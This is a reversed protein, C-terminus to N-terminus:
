KAVWVKGDQTQTYSELNVSERADVERFQGLSQIVGGTKPDLLEAHRDSHIYLVSEQAYQSAIELVRALHRGNVLFSRESEGKYVGNVFVHGIGEADLLRYTSEHAWDNISQSVGKRRVSFIVIPDYIPKM